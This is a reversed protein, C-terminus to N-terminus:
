IIFLAFMKLISFFDGFAEEKEFRLRSNEIFEFLLITQV